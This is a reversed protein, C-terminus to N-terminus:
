AGPATGVEGAKYLYKIASKYILVRSKGRVKICSRDYWEVVGQVRSGDELLFVMQTQQQIQKQLYFLEAQNNSGHDDSHMASHVASHVAANGRVSPTPKHVRTRRGQPPFMEASPTRSTKLPKRSDPTSDPTSDQVPEHTSGAQTEPNAAAITTPSGTTIQSHSPMHSHSPAVVVVAPQDM